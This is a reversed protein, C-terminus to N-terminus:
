DMTRRGPRRKLRERRRPRLKRGTDPDYETPAWSPHTKAWKLFQSLADVQDDHKCTPFARLESLLTDLWPASVPLLIEGDEVLALQGVMRTIKDAEPRIPRPRWDSRSGLDQCLHSGAGADEILVLNAKWRQQQAIVLDRLKPYAFHGRLVDLLYWKGELYGFSMCVSYDARLEESTATDWSQVLKMFRERPFEDLEFRAFRDIRIVNGELAAPLQLYQTAFDRPGMERRYSDLVERPEDDPRLVEGPQRRYQRGFGIDHVTETDDCAPLCLHEAGAELLRAPLDDEGLRQQISIILGCRKNNLRTLLTGSYFRDLEERRAESTIDEAKMADDIIIIDAGFGTTAGGVTVCRCGGGTTTSLVQEGIGSKTLRTGPFLAQYLRSNIVRQLKELHERSLKAGYTALMVRLRPNRGLMWAVFAVSTISKLHRPPVNIVIRRITGTAAKQFAECMAHLYWHMVLPKHGPHLLAFVWPLFMVLYGRMLAAMQLQALAPEGAGQERRRAM